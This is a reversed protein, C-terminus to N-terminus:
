GGPLWPGGPAWTGPMPGGGLAGLVPRVFGDLATVADTLEVDVIVAKDRRMLAWREAWRRGALAEALEDLVRTEAPTGRREFTARFSGALAAGVFGRRRTLVVVDLVDKLRHEILPFRALLTEVKEALVPEPDYAFVRAAPDGEIFTALQTRAPDPVLADGFGVDIHVEIPTDGLRAGVVVRVGDYGDIDRTALTARVDDPDFTLGDDAPLAVVERFRRRMEDTGWAAPTAGLAMFCGERCPSRALPARRKAGDLPLLSSTSPRPRPADGRGPSSRGLSPPPVGGQKPNPNPPGRRRLLDIDRTFRYPADVLNAVLLGGKLFFERAHRSKGLRFLLRDMAYAVLADNRTLRRERSRNAIRQAVSRAIDSRSM